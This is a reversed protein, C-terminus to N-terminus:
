VGRITVEVGLREGLAKLYADITAAHGIIFRSMFRFLPNYVEGDETIILATVEGYESIEFTWSGGFGLNQDAIRRVLRRPAVSEVTEMTLAQGRRDTERWLQREGKDHLREVHRLNHRWSVQGPFDTVVEWVETPARNFPAMRSVSHAKPLLSGVLAVLAGIGVLVVIGVALWIM